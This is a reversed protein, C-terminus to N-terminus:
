DAGLRALVEDLREYTENLGTEMGSDLMGDREETTHFISTTTVKTQEGLDEFVATEVSVHGPMGEWEFTQVIREPPTVERYTGRFATESGDPGRMVFRYGGGARVDMTDVITTGGRPGWWEPILEPDTYVAFVRDRPADFVREIYIERDTPTTITASRAQQQESTV